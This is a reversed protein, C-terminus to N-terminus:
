AEDANAGPQGTSPTEEDGTPATGDAPPTGAPDIELPNGDSDIPAAPDLLEPVDPAEEEEDPEREVLWVVSDADITVLERPNGGVPTLAQAAQARKLSADAKDLDSDEYLTPWVVQYEGTTPAPLAKLDILRDIFTRLIYPEAFHEQRENIRGIYTAEDTTSALEGLENGFLIRKPIGSAGAILSFYFDAVQQVNPTSGGLWELNVGQGYFQRRMDHVLEKLKEDLAELDKESVQATPDIKAQLIRVVNQWYSEGTSAAVKDLDFLRNLAREMRPRGFVDDELLDEAVHLLRSAHIRVDTQAFQKNDRAVRLKYILPLGFRENGPDTEWTDIVANSENYVSLYVIDDPGSLRELPTSLAQDTTGRVGITLVAYRGIGALRDVRQFYHWLRLRKALTAFETTFPTGETHGEEVIEPPTRWTTKAPMDVIRGAIDGRTYLGWYHEFRIDGQPVYGAVAYVDRKGNFQVGAMRRIFDSSRALVTHLALAEDATLSGTNDAPVDVVTHTNSTRAKQTRTANTVKRRGHDGGGPVAGRGRKATM